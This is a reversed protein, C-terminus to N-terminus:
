MLSHRLVNISTNNKTYQLPLLLPLTVDTCATSDYAPISTYVWTNKVEGSTSTFSWIWEGAV